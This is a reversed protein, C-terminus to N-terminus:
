ELRSIAGLCLFTDLDWLCTMADGGGSAFYRGKPDFAIVSCSSTHAPLSYVPEFTKFDLIEILGEGLTMFFLNGSYDWSLANVVGDKRITHWVYKKESSADGGGRPDIFSIVDDKNGVAITM